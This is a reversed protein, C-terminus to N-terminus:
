LSPSYSYRFYPVVSSVEEESYNEYKMFEKTGSFIAEVGISLSSNSYEKMVGIYKPKSQTGNTNASITKDYTGDILSVGEKTGYIPIHFNSGNM